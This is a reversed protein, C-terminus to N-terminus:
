TYNIIGFKQDTHSNNKTGMSGYKPQKKHLLKKRSQKHIERDINEETVNGVIILYKM